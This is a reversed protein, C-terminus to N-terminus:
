RMRARGSGRGTPDAVPEDRTTRRHPALRSGPHEGELFFKFTQRQVAEILSEDDLTALAAPTMGAGIMASRSIRHVTSDDRRGNHVAEICHMSVCYQGDRARCFNLKIRRHHVLCQWLIAVGHTTDFRQDSSCVDSSWDRIRMEYATKQKFFFLWRCVRM